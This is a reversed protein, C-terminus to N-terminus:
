SDIKRFLQHHELDFILEGKYNKVELILLFKPNVVLADVQFHQIGDYLQLDTIPHFESSPLYRLYHDATTEDALGASMKLFKEHISNWQPNISSVRNMLSELQRHQNSKTRIIFTVSREICSIRWRLGFEKKM